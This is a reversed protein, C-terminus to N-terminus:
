GERKGIANEAYGEGRHVLLRRVSYTARSISRCLRQVCSYPTRRRRTEKGEERLLASLPPSLSLSPLVSSIGSSRAIAVGVSPKVSRFPRWRDGRPFPARRSSAAVSQRRTVAHTHRVTVNVVRPDPAALSRSDILSGDNRARRTRRIGAHPCVFEPRARRSGRSLRAIATTRSSSGDRRRPTSTGDITERVREERERGGNGRERDRVSMCVCVRRKERERRRMEGYTAHMDRAQCVTKQKGGADPAVPASRGRPPEGGGVQPAARLQVGPM